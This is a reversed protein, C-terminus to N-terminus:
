FISQLDEELTYLDDHGHFHTVLNGGLFGVFLNLIFDALELFVLFLDVM